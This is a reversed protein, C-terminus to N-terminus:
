SQKSKGPAGTEAGTYGRDISIRRAADIVAGELDRMRESTMRTAPGTVSISAIVEGHFNVVPAAVCRTGEQHEELDYACGRNRIEKIAFRLKEATTITNNTFPALDLRDIIRRQEEDDLSALIAKGVGTCYIPGRKGIASYLRLGDSSELKDIYVIESGDRVALHVTEQVQARLQRLHPQAVKRIDTEEWTRHALELLRYGAHYTQQEPDLRVLRETMLATLIRHLSAKPMDLKRAIAAFRLPEPSEAITSLVTM